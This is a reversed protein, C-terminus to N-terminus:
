LRLLHRGTGPRRPLGDPGGHSLAHADHVFPRCRLQRDGHVHRRVAPLDCRSHHRAPYQGPEQLLQIQAATLIQSLIGAAIFIPFLMMFSPNSFGKMVAKAYRNKDKYVILGLAIALFGAGWFNRLSGMGAFCLIIIAALMGVLPVLGGVKGGYTQAYNKENEM